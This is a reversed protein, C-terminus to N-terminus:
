AAAAKAQPKGGGIISSLPGFVLVVLAAVAFYAVGAAAGGNAALQSVGTSDLVYVAAGLLTYLVPFVLSTALQRRGVIGSWDPSNTLIRSRGVMPRVARVLVPVMIIIAPIGTINWIVVFGLIWSTPLALYLVLNVAAILNGLTVFAVTAAVFAAWSRYRKVFLGLLLIGVFNAPVGAVLSLTPTTRVFYDGLFTGVGAGIAVPLTESVVVLFAPIFIAILVEGVAYPFPIPGTVAKGVAYLAATIAIISVRTSVGATSLSRSSGM